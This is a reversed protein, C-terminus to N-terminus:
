VRLRVEESGFWLDKQQDRWARQAWAYRGMVPGIRKALGVFFPAYKTGWFRTDQYQLNQARKIEPEREDQVAACAADIEAGTAGRQLVPTLHNAAIVADRLAVNIGQARVPSMPHAADGLALVGPAHWKACRGIIVRLHVPGEIEDPVSAIHAALDPPAVRSMEAAWDAHKGPAAVGKPIMLAFQLRSDWSTYCAAAVTNSAMLYMRCRDRLAEPAPLKFWLVDFSQPILNLRLDARARVLSGRGDCGIVLDTEVEERGNPSEVIAGTVRGDTRVLDRFTTERDFRFNSYKRAEEVVGALFQAQPIVRMARDGLQEYPEPV